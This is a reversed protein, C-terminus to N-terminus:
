HDPGAHHRGKKYTPLMTAFTSKPPDTKGERQWGSHRELVQVQGSTLSVIHTTTKRDVLSVEAIIRGFPGVLFCVVVSDVASSRERRDKRLCPEAREAAADKPSAALLARPLGTASVSLTPITPVPPRPPPASSPRIPWRVGPVSPNQGGRRADSTEPSQRM